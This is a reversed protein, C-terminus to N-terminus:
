SNPFQFDHLWSILSFVMFSDMWKLGKYRWTFTSNGISWPECFLPFIGHLSIFSSLAHFRAETVFATLTWQHAICIKKRTTKIANQNYFWVTFFLSLGAEGKRNTRHIEGAQIIGRALFALMIITVLFLICVCSERMGSMLFFTNHEEMWSSTPIHKLIISQFIWWIPGPTYRPLIASMCFWIDFYM